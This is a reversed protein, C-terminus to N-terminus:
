IIGRLAELTEDLHGRHLIGHGGVACWEKINELKDDILIDGPMCHEQKNKAFPGFHVPVDPFYKIGWNVKDYFAWHVDNGKPVATLFFLEYNAIDRLYRCYELLGDAEATKPLKSYLRPNATIQQWLSKPWRNEPLPMDLVRSVYTDFDAVVGDMDIYIKAM